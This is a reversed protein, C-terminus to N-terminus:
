LLRREDLSTQISLSPDSIDAALESYALLGAVLVQLAESLAPEVGERIPRVRGFIVTAANRWLNRLADDGDPPLIRLVTGLGNTVSQNLSLRSLV